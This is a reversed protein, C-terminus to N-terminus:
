HLATHQQHRQINVDRPASLARYRRPSSSRDAANGRTVSRSQREYRNASSYKMPASESMVYRSRRQIEPTTSYGSHMRVDRRNRQHFDSVAPQHNFSNYRAGLSDRHAPFPDRELYYTNQRLPLSNYDGSSRYDSLTFENVRDDARRDSAHARHVDAQIVHNARSNHFVPADSTYQSSQSSLRFRNDAGRLAADNHSNFARQKVKTHEYSDDYAYGNQMRASGRAPVTASWSNASMDTAGSESEIELASLGPPARKMPLVMGRNYVQRVNELEDRSEHRQQKKGSKTTVHRGRTHNNDEPVFKQEYETVM